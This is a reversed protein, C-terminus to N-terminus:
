RKPNAALYDNVFSDVSALIRKQLEENFDVNHGVTGLGNVPQSWVRGYVAGGRPKSPVLIALQDVYVDFRYIWRERGWM